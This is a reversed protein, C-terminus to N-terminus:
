GEYREKMGVVRYRSWYTVREGEKRKRERKEIEGPMREGGKADEASM